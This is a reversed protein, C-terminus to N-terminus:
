FWLTFGASFTFTNTGNRSSSASSNYSIQQYQMALNLLGHNIVAYKIGARTGWIFGDYTQGSDSYIEDTYGLQAEIFPYVTGDTKFNYSPSFIMTIVNTTSNSDWYRRYGFPNMGLEINDSVFYGVYPMISILNYNSFESGQTIISLYEYSANGGIEFTGRSAFANSNQVISQSYLITSYMMLAFLIIASLHFGRYKM